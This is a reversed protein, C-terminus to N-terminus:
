NFEFLSMYGEFVAAMGSGMVSFVKSMDITQYEVVVKPAAAPVTNGVEVTKTCQGEGGPGYVKKVYTTTETPTLKIQGRVPGREGTISSASTANKSEWYLVVEEGATIVAKTSKLVCTPAVNASTTTGNSWNDGGMISRCHALLAERTKPGAAGFGTSDADGESVIGTRSQWAKLARETIPGFFNTTNAEKLDGTRQLFAQLHEVEEGSHGPKLTRTIARCAMLSPKGEAFGTPVRDEFTGKAIAPMTAAGPAASSSSQSPVTAGLAESVDEIVSEDAEFSQLLNLIAEKQQSTLEAAQARPMAISFLCCMAVAVVMLRVLGFQQPIARALVKM